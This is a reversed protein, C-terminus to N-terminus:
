SRMWAESDSTYFTMIGNYKSNIKHEYLHLCYKAIKMILINQTNKKERRNMTKSYGPEFM